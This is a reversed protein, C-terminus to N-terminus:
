PKVSLDSHLDDLRLGVTILGVFDRAPPESTTNLCVLSM